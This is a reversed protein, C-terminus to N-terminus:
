RTLMGGDVVITAGNIFDGAQSALLISIGKYDDPVGWRGLPIKELTKQYRVPDERLPATLRTETMGPAITNSCIGHKSWEDAFCATLQRVGAKAAQYGPIDKASSIFAAISAFNIIKGYHNAKMVEVARRSLDFLAVTNVEMIEDWVELPYEDIPIRKQLGANNVLIDLRGNLKKLCEDFAEARQKRDLLNMKVAHVKNLGKKNFEECAAYIADSSGTIVVEAGQELYGEAISKGIGKGGGTVIAKRGELSFINTM